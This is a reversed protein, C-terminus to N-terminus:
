YDSTNTKLRQVFFFYKKQVFTESQIEYKKKKKANKISKRDGM